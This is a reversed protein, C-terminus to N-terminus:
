MFKLSSVASFTGRLTRVTYSIWFRIAFIARAIYMTISDARLMLAYLRLKSFNSLIARSLSSISNLCKLGRKSLKNPTFTNLREEISMSEIRLFTCLSSITDSPSLSGGGDPEFWAQWFVLTFVTVSSSRALRHLDLSNLWTSMLDSLALYFCEFSSIALFFIIEM